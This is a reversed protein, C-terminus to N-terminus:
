NYKEFYGEVVHTLQNEKDRVLTYKKSIFNEIKALDISKRIESDTSLLITQHSLKPFYNELLSARSNEDLYGFVTDIMVPPNYDGFYHLSKLLVQIIIQKSAANLEDLYIENGAKHYIKFSLNSLDESLVVRDIQDKYVVLTTNLDNKMEEEIRAKKNILLANSIKSFLPGLKKLAELKPNPEEEDSLDFRKIKADLKDSEIKYNHLADKYDKIKLENAEFSQIIDESGGIDNKRLDLLQIRLNPLTALEKELSSKQQELTTYQNISSWGLLQEFYTVDKKDIFDYETKKNNQSSKTLIFKALATKQEKSLEGLILHHEKLFELVRDTLKNIQEPDIFDSSIQQGKESLILEIEYQVITVLKPIFVQIEIDNLFKESQEIFLSEKNLIDEIKRDVILIQEKIDAQLNKGEKASEYFEKQSISYNLARENLTATSEILEQYKKQEEILNKYQTREEGIEISQAIYEQTLTHTANGLQIYKNFGMVNEINEKIVRNLYEDKLLNGAEMADFLFYKSLEQPLNAKIIKNVEAEKKVREAHPTATGYNFIDGNLNLMVAEVPNNQANITYLRKIIYKYDTHLVKGTFHIELEIKNSSNSSTKAREGANQLKNFHQEDKVKLGYLASYIAQFLTTKGGGNEGGILIIPQEENVTLDLDLEQYTKFNKAIIKTILM